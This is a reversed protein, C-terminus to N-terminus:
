TSQNLALRYVALVRQAVKDLSLHKVHDRGNSRLRMRLLTVLAEGMVHPDRPVVASPHVGALREPVDGVPSSVVPLNCALAEKVMNPSGEQKSACLFVDAARYYLPMQSPEAHSVVQMVAKPIRSRVVEMAAEAVDLGKNNPDRGQNFLVIPRELDWGLAKRAEDQPGPSFFTLDVGNPIVVAQSRRWWLARRLEESKCILGRALLAALNSLIFGLYMRLASRSAGPLLDGGCFSIVAPRGAFVALCATITGYQAHILHPNLRRVYRRLEFWKRVIHFPAHSTGMDFLKIEVGAQRLSDLQRDVFVGASSWAKKAEWHNSVVLVCPMLSAPAATAPLSDDM